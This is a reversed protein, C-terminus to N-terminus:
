AQDNVLRGRPATARLGMASPGRALGSIRRGTPRSNIVMYMSAVLGTHLRPKFGATETCTEYLSAFRCTESPPV